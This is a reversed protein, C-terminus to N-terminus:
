PNGRGPLPIRRGSERLSPFERFGRYGSGDIRLAGPHLQEQARWPAIGQEQLYRALDNQETQGPTPVFLANRVGLGALEMVTTYGSRAIILDASLILRRLTEEDAHPVIRLGDSRADLGFASRGSKREEPKGLLLVRSGPMDRLIAELKKEFITRQPEPGSVIALCDIEVSPKEGSAATSFRCLPGIYRVRKVLFNRRHSLRGALNPPASFDPIWVEGFRRCFLGLIWSSITELWREWHVGAFEWLPFKIFLQHTILISPCLRTFLGIRGDSVVLDFRRAIVLKQLARHEGAIRWLIGPLRSLFHFVFQKGGSLRPSIGPFDLIELGPFEGALFERSRGSAAPTVTHGLARWERILPVCRAAHGLGWDLPCVLIKM